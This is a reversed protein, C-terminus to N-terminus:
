ADRRPVAVCLMVGCVVLYLYRYVDNTLVDAGLLVWPCRPARCVGFQWAGLRLTRASM